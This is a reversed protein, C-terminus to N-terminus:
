VDTIPEFGKHSMKAPDTQTLDIFVLAHPNESTAEKILLEVAKAGGSLAGGLDQSLLKLDVENRPRGCFFSISNKRIAPHCFKYSQTTVFVGVGYHRGRTYLSTLLGSQAAGKESALDDVIVLTQFANKKKALMYQATTQIENFVRSM